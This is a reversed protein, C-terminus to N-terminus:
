KHFSVIGGSTPIDVSLSQMVKSVEFTKKKKPEFAPKSWQAWLTACNCEMMARSCEAM